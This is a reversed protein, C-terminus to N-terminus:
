QQNTDDQQKVQWKSKKKRRGRQRKRRSGTSTNINIDNLSSDCDPQRQKGRNVNSGKGISQKKISNRYRKVLTDIEIQYYFQDIILHLGAVSGKISPIFSLIEDFVVYPVNLNTVLPCGILEKKFKIMSVCDESMPGIKSVLETDVKFKTEKDEDEDEDDDDDLEYGCYMDQDDEENAEKGAKKEGDKAAKEAKAAEAAKKKQEAKFIDIEQSIVGEVIKMSNQLNLIIYDREDYNYLMIKIGDHRGRRKGNNNNHNNGILKLNETDVLKSTDIMMSIILLRDFQREIKGNYQNHNNGFGANAGQKSKRSQYEGTNANIDNYNSRSDNNKKNISMKPIKICEISSVKYNLLLHDITKHYPRRYVEDRPIMCRSKHGFTLVHKGNKEVLANFQIFALGKNSGDWETLDWDGHWKSKIPTQKDGSHCVILLFSIDYYEYNDKGGGTGSSSIVNIRKRSKQKLNSNSNYTKCDLLVCKYWDIYRGMNIFKQKEWFKERSMAFGGESVWKFTGYDQNRDCGIDYYDICGKKDGHKEKYEKVLKDIYERRQKYDIVQFCYHGKDVNRSMNQISVLFDIGCSPWNYTIKYGDNNCHTDSIKIVINKNIFISQFDSWGEYGGRWSQGVESCPTDKSMYTDYSEVYRMEHSGSHSSGDNGNGNGNGNDMKTKEEKELEKDKAEQVKQKEKEEEEIEQEHYHIAKNIDCVWGDTISLLSVLHKNDLTQYFGDQAVYFRTLKESSFDNCVILRKNNNNNNNISGSQSAIEFLQPKPFVRNFVLNSPQPTSISQTQQAMEPQKIYSSIIINDSCRSIKCDIFDHSYQCVTVNDIIITDSILQTGDKQSQPKSHRQGM